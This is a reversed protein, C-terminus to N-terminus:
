GSPTFELHLRTLGRLIFTPAYRYSRGDPPGHKDENIRIDAMRDLIRDLSVRAEARALPAGPCVHVGLGFAIHERANARDPKFENPEEFVRPDRNAAGNLIMVTTGAPVEIGAVDVPVRSLRFQGKVPSEHRLAEEVFNPIRHREQRLLEQLDPREALVQLQYALLRVTTEQGAAFLNSAVGAVDQVDPSSGDRFTATALGTLIDDRPERRRDEIYGSFRDYLFELPKHAM